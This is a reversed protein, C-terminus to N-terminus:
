QLLINREPEGIWRTSGSLASRRLVRLEVLDDNGFNGRKVQPSAPSASRPPAVLHSQALGISLIVGAAAVAIAVRLSARHRRTRSLLPVSVSRSPLALDATRLMRTAADLREAFVRCDSCRNLHRTLLRMELDSLEGDARLSVRERQRECSASVEM